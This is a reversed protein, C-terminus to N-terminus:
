QLFRVENEASTALELAKSATANAKEMIEAIKSYRTAAETQNYSFGSVNKYVRPYHFCINDITFLMIM